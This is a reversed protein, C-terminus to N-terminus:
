FRWEFGLTMKRPLSYYEPHNDIDNLSFIGEQQLTTTLIAQQDPLRAPNSSRGTSPYVTEENLHDFINDVKLYMALKQGFIEFQKM